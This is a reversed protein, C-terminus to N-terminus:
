DDGAAPTLNIAQYVKSVVDNTTTRSGVWYALAVAAQAGSKAYSCVRAGM